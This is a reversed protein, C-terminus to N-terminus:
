LVYLRPQTGAGVTSAAAALIQANRRVYMWRLCLAGISVFFLMACNVGHGTPYGSAKLKTLEPVGYADCNM